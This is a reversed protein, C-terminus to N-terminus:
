QEAHARSVYLPVGLLTALNNTGGACAVESLVVMQVGGRDRQGEHAVRDL